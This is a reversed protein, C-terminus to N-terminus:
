ACIALDVLATVLFSANNEYCYRERQSVENKIKLFQKSIILKSDHSASFALIIALNL